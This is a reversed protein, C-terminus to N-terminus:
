LHNHADQEDGGMKFERDHEFVWLLRIWTSECRLVVTHVLKFEPHKGLIENIADAVTPKGYEKSTTGNVIAVRQM